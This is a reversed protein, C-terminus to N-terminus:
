NRQIGRKTEEERESEIGVVDSETPSRLVQTGDRAVELERGDYTPLLDNYTRSHRGSSNYQLKPPKFAQGTALPVILLSPKNSSTHGQQLFHKVTYAPKSHEFEM